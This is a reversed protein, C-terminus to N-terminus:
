GKVFVEYEELSIEGSKDVDIIAFAETLAEHATAEEATIQGNKDVDLVEFAPMEQAVVSSALFSLGLGAVVAAMNRM